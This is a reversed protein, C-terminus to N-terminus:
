KINVMDNDYIFLPHSSNQGYNVSDTGRTYTATEGAPHQVLLLTVAVHAADRGVVKGLLLALDTFAPLFRGPKIKNLKFFIM